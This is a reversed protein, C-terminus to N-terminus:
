IHILSLVSYALNDFAISVELGNNEEDGERVTGVYSASGNASLITEEENTLTFTLKNITYTEDNLLPSDDIPGTWKQGRYTGNLGLTIDNKGSLLIQINYSYRNEM